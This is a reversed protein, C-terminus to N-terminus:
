SYHSKKTTQKKKFLLECTIIWCQSDNAWFCGHDDIWKSLGIKNPSVFDISECVRHIPHSIMCHLIELCQASTPHLFAIFKSALKVPGLSIPFHLKLKSWSGTTNKPEQLHCQQNFYLFLSDAHKWGLTPVFRAMQFLWFIWGTWSGVEFHWKGMAPHFDRFQSVWGILGDQFESVFRSLSFRYKRWGSLNRFKNSKRM